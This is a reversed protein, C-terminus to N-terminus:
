GEASLEQERTIIEKVNKPMSESSLYSKLDAQKHNLGLKKRIRNRHSSITSKSLQLIDAMEKTTKGKQVLDIVQIEVPTLRSFKPSRLIMFPSVIEKLNSEIIDVYIQQRHDAIHSKLRELYPFILDKMSFLIKEEFVKRDNERKKLLTQLATNLEELGSVRSALAKESCKRETIDILFIQVASIDGKIDCVPQCSTLLWQDGQPHKVLEEFECPQGNEACQQIKGMITDAFEPIIEYVSKGIIDDAKKNLYDAAPTNIQLYTGKLNFVAFPSIAYGPDTRMQGGNQTKSKPRPETRKPLVKLLYVGEQLAEKTQSLARDKKPEVFMEASNKRIM